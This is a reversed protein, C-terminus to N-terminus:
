TLHEVETTTVLGSAIGELGLTRMSPVLASAAVEAESELVVADKLKDSPPRLLKQQARKFAVSRADEARRWEGSLPSTINRPPDRLLSLALVLAVRSGKSILICSGSDVRGTRGARGAMQRVEHAEWPVSGWKFASRLVVTKVPLNVGVALASTCVMVDAAGSTYALLAWEKCVAPIQAHYYVIGSQLLQLLRSKLSSDHAELELRELVKRSTRRANQVAACLEPDRRSGDGVGAGSGGAKGPVKRCSNSVEGVRARAISNAELECDRTSGCFVLVNSLGVTAENSLDACNTLVTNVFRQHEAAITETASSHTGGGRQGPVRPPSTKSLQELEDLDLVLSHELSDAGPPLAVKLCLPTPRDDSRFLVAGLWRAIAPANPLTASFAVIQCHGVPPPVIPPVSAVGHGVHRQAFALKTLLLELPRKEALTHAEDIVVSVLPTASLGHATGSHSQSAAGQGNSELLLDNILLNAKEVTCVLIRATPGPGSRQEEAMNKVGVRWRRREEPPLSANHSRVLHDLESFKEAATARLPLVYLARGGTQFIRRLMVLTAVLTKGGSTPACYVLNPPPLTSPSSPDQAEARLYVNLCEGQWPHLRKVGGITLQAALLPPIDLAACAGSIDLPFPAEPPGFDPESHRNPPEEDGQVAVDDEEETAGDEDEDDLTAYSQSLLKESLIRKAHSRPRSMNRFLSSFPQFLPTLRNYPYVIHSRRRWWTTVISGYPGVFGITSFNGSQTTHAIKQRHIPVRSAPEKISIEESSVGSDPM